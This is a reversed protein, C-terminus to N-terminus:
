KKSEVYEQNMGKIVDGTINYSENVYLLNIQDKAYPMIYSYRGDANYKKLYEIIKEQLKYNFDATEGMFKSEMSQKRMEIDQQKRQLREQAAMGEEETMTQAKQALSQYESQFASVSRNLEAEMAKQKSELTAKGAKFFAYNEQLSDLDVYAIQPVTVTKGDTKIIQPQNNSKKSGFHLYFLVGVLLFLIANLILSLNKMQKNKYKLIFNYM